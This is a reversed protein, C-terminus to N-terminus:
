ARNGIKKVAQKLTEISLHSYRKTSEASRHGLVAGVIYLDIGSNIMESAAGHRLDHFHLHGYDLARAAKKFNKRITAAALKPIKTSALKPHIPVVRPNGNKTDALHYFGDAIQARLIEAQRMGSYFAIRIAARVGRNKVKRAIRVMMERTPYFHRANNVTPIVVKGAPDHEGMGCHKWGWRCAATLYWLRNAVTGPKLIGQSKIAVTKCVDPLASLPRGQYAWFIYGLAKVANDPRKLQPVRERLYAAVADEITFEAKEAGTAIAYVRASETRDFSDAQAQSWLKPLRREIRFRKGNIVRRFQYVFCGHKKDRYISM